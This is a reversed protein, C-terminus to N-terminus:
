NLWMQLLRGNTPGYITETHVIGSGATMVQFDGKKMTELMENFAGDIMLSVTEFGAHPHPGGAPENNKKDLMDDMLVIFPDTQAFGGDVISRAIHGDGLFGAENRPNVIKSISRKIM